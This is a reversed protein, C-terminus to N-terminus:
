SGTDIPSKAPKPLGPTSELTSQVVSQQMQRAPERKLARAEVYGWGSALRRLLVSEYRPFSREARIGEADKVPQSAGPGGPRM